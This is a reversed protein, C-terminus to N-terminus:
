DPHRDAPPLVLQQRILDLVHEAPRGDPGNRLIRLRAPQGPEGRIETIAEQLAKGYLSTVEGSAGSIEVLRDGTQLGAQQAASDPLVGKITPFGEENAMLAGIGRPTAEYIAEHVADRLAPEPLSEAWAVAERTGQNAMARALARALEFREGPDTLIALEARASDPNADTWAEFIRSRLSNPVPQTQTRLWLLVAAPDKAAWQPIAADLFQQREWPTFDKALALAEAPNEAIHAAAYSGAISARGPHEAFAEMWARAAGPPVNPSTSLLEAAAIVFGRKDSVLWAPNFGGQGAGLWATALALCAAHRDPKEIALAQELGESPSKAAALWGFIGELIARREGQDEVGELLRLAAALDTQAVGFAKVTLSAHRVQSSAPVLGAVSLHAASRSPPSPAHPGQAASPARATSIRQWATVWGLAFGGSLAVPILLLSWSKMSLLWRGVM